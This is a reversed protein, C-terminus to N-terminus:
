VILTLNEAKTNSQYQDYQKEIPKAWYRSGVYLVDKEDYYFHVDTLRSFDELTKLQKKIEGKTEWLDIRNFMPGSMSSKSAFSIGPNIFGLVYSNWDWKGGLRIQYNLKNNVDRGKVYVLKTEPTPLDDVKSM